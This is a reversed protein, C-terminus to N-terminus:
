RTNPKGRGRRRAGDLRMVSGEDGRERWPRRRSRAISHGIRSVAPAATVAHYRALSRSPSRSVPARLLRQATNPAGAHELDYASRSVLTRLRAIEKRLMTAEQELGAWQRAIAFGPATERLYSHWWREGPENCRLQLEAKIM